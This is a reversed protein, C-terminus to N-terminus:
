NLRDNLKKQREEYLDRLRKRARFARVKVNYDSWGILKAAEKVSQRELDILTVVLRDKEPLEDLLSQVLEWADRRRRVDDDTNGRADPSPLPTEDVLVESERRRRHKRLFDYCTRITVRMLWHEFPADERYSGLGKWIRIFIDQALDELEHRGRAFRSATGFVRDRYREALASFATDDGARARRVLDM